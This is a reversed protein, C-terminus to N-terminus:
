YVFGDGGVHIVEGTVNDVVVSRGTQPHVYRTAGNTPNLKNPAPYQRGSSIAEDIQRNTWGRKQMRNAWKQASKGGGLTWSRSGARAAGASAGKWANWVPALAKGGAGFAGGLAADLWFEGWTYCGDGIAQDLLYGTIVGIGAGVVVAACWPCEGTPDTWYLPNQSAYGYLSPDPVLGLPDAQLYRGTTPDYDRMWNQHM